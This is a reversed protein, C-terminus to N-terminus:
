HNQNYKQIEERLQALENKLMALEKVEKRLNKVEVALDADDSAHDGKVFYTTLTSTLSGILGIGLLMLIVATFRGIETHPSIDGYGVTTTTAIAWWLSNGYDVNEAVSYIEAALFILVVSTILLYIFGNTNVFKKINKQIKGTFGVIRILKLLRLVRLVRAVRFFYFLSDFPLIALLDFINHRFFIKKNPSRYFRVAYDLWFFALIGKDIYNIPSQTISAFNAIEIIAIMISAISLILTLAYYFRKIHINM